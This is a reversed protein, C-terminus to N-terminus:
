KRMMVPSKNEKEEKFSKAQKTKTFFEFPQLTKTIYIM